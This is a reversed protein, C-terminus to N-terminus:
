VTGAACAASSSVALVFVFGLTLEGEGRKAPLERPSPAQEFTLGLGCDYAGARLGSRRFPALDWNIKEGGSPFRCKYATFWFAPKANQTFRKIQEGST